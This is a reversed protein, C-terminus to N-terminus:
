ARPEEGVLEVLRDVDARAHAGQALRHVERQAVEGLARPTLAGISLWTSRPSVLGVSATALRMAAPRSSRRLWSSRRSSAPLDGDDAGALAAAATARGGPMADLDEGRRQGALAGLEAAVHERGARLGAARAVRRHVLGAAALDRDDLAAGDHQSM